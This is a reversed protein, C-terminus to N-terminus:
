GGLKEFIFNSNQIAVKAMVTSIDAGQTFMENIEEMNSHHNDEYYKIKTNKMDKLKERCESKDCCVEDIKTGENKWQPSVILAECVLCTESFKPEYLKCDKAIADIIFGRTYAKSLLDEIYDFHEEVKHQECTPQGVVFDDIGDNQARAFTNTCFKCNYCNKM